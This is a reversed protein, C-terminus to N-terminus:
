AVRCEGVVSAVSKCGYLYNCCDGCTVEMGTNLFSWQLGAESALERQLYLLQGQPQWLLDRAM